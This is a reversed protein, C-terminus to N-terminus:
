RDRSVHTYGKMCPKFGVLCFNPKIFSKKNLISTNKIKILWARNRVSSLLLFREYFGIAVLWYM